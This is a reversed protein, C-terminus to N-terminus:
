RLWLAMYAQSWKTLLSVIVLNHSCNASNTPMKVKQQFNTQYPHPPKNGSNSIPLHRTVLSNIPIAQGLTLAFTPGQVPVTQAVKLAPQLPQPTRVVQLLAQFQTADMGISATATPVNRASAGTSAEGRPTGSGRTIGRTSVM